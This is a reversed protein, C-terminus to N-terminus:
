PRQDIEVARFVPGKGQGEIGEVAVVTNAIHLQKHRCAKHCHEGADDEEKRSLPVKDLGGGRTSEFTLQVTDTKVKSASGPVSM